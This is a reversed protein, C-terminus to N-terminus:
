EGGSEVVIQKEGMAELMMNYYNYYVDIMEAYITGLNNLVGILYTYQDFSEDYKESITITAPHVSYNVVAYYPTYDENVPQNHLKYFVQYIVFNLRNVWASDSVLEDLETELHNTVPLLEELARVHRDANRIAAQVEEDKKEKAARLKVIKPLQRRATWEKM